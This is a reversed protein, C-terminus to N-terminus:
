RRRLISKMADLETYYMASPDIGRQDLWEIRANMAPQSGIWPLLVLWIAALALLCALLGRLNGPQVTGAAHEAFQKDLREM